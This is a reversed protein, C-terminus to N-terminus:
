GPEALLARIRRVVPPDALLILSAGAELKHEGGPNYAYKGDPQHVAIVLAGAERFPAQALHKGVLPSDSPVPVAEIGIHSGKHDRLLRDMFEVTRPRIMESALRIGGIFNPSVVADAGAHRLKAETTTEIAKAVIRARPNLARATITVFLNAKDDNLASIVGRAREIGARQLIHDESADGVISLLEMGLEEELEAIRDADRDVTVFDAGGALLEEVIHLGTTGVGCIIFHNNLEDIATTMRRRRLLGGLDGEVILATLSSLFYLLIGTGTIILTIVTLRAGEVEAMGPLTEAFGVTSITVVTMYLCDFWAWRGLGLVYFTTAGAWVVILLMLFSAILRRYSGTM